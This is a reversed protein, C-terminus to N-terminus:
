PPMLYIEMGFWFAEVHMIITVRGACLYKHVCVCVCVCVCKGVIFRSGLIMYKSTAAFYM